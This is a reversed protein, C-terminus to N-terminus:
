RKFIGRVKGWVNGQEQQPKAAQRLTVKRLEDRAVTIGPNNKLLKTYLEVALDLNGLVNMIRAKFLLASESDPSLYIARDLTDIVQEIYEEEKANRQQSAHFLAWGRYAHYSPEEPNIECAREFAKLAEFWHNMKMRQKGGTFLDEADFLISYAIQPSAHRYLIGMRQDYIQRQRRDLTVAAALDLARNILQLIMGARNSILFGRYREYSYQHKKRRYSQRLVSLAAAQDVGLIGYHNSELMVAYTHELMTELKQDTGSQPDGPPPLAHLNRLGLDGPTADLQEGRARAATPKGSNPAAARITQRGPEEDDAESAYNGESSVEMPGEAPVLGVMPDASADLEGSPEPIPTYDLSTFGSLEPADAQEPPAEVPHAPAVPAHSEPAPESAQLYDEYLAEPLNIPQSLNAAPAPQPVPAAAVPVPAVHAVPATAVPADPADVPAEPPADPEPSFAALLVEPQPVQFDALQMPADLESPAEEPEELPPLDEPAPIRSAPRVSPAPIEVSTSEALEEALPGSTGDTLLFRLRPPVVGSAPFLVGCHFLAFIPKITEPDEPSAKDSPRFPEFPARLPVSPNEFAALFQLMGEPPRTAFDMTIPGHAELWSKFFLPEDLGAVTRYFVLMPDLRLPRLPLGGVPHGRRAHAVLGDKPYLFMLANEGYLLRLALLDERSVQDREALLHEVPVGLSKSDEVAALTEKRGIPSHRLLFTAFSHEATDSSVSLLNGRNYGFQFALGPCRLDLSGSFCVRELDRLLLPLEFRQLTGAFM